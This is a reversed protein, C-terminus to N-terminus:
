GIYIYKPKGSNFEDELQYLEVAQQLQELRVGEEVYLLDGLKVSEKVYNSKAIAQASQDDTQIAGRIYNTLLENQKTNKRKLLNLTKEKTLQPPVKHKSKIFAKDIEDGKEKAKQKYDEDAKWKEYSIEYQKTIINFYDFVIDRIELSV